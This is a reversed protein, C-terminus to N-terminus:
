TYVNRWAAVWKEEAIRGVCLMGTVVAVSEILRELMLFSSVDVLKSTYVRIPELM